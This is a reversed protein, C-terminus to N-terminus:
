RDAFNHLETLKQRLLKYLRPHGDRFSKLKDKLESPSWDKGTVQNILNSLVNGSVPVSGRARVSESAKRSDGLSAHVQPSRLKSQGAYKSVYTTLYLLGKSKLLTTAMPAVYANALRAVWTLTGELLLLADEPDEAYTSIGLPLFGRSAEAVLSLEYKYKHIQKRAEKASSTVSAMDERTALKKIEKQQATYEDDKAQVGRYRGGTRLWESAPSLQTLCFYVVPRQCGAAVLRDILDEVVRVEDKERQRRIFSPLHNPACSEEHWVGNQEWRDIWPDNLGLREALLKESIAKRDIRPTTPKAM